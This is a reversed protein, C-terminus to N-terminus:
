YLSRKWIQTNRHTSSAAFAKGSNFAGETSLIFTPNESVTVPISGSGDTTRNSFSGTLSGNAMNGVSVTQGPSGVRLSFSPVTKGETTPCWVAYIVSDRASANRYRFIWVPDGPADRIISDARYNKMLGALAVDYYYAPTAYLHLVHDPTQHFTLLGTTNFRGTGATDYDTSLADNTLQYLNSKDVGTFGILLWERVIWEAQVLAPDEGEPAIVHLDSHRNRDFGWESFFVKSLPNLVHMLHTYASLKGLVSDAEPNLASANGDQRFCYYHCDVADWYLKHDPRGWYAFFKMGKMLSSDLYATAPLVVNLRPDAAKIGIRSAGTGNADTMESCIAHMAAATIFLPTWDADIENNLEVYTGVRHNFAAPTLVSADHPVGGNGIVAALYYALRGLRDYNSPLSSDPRAGPRNVLDIPHNVLDIPYRGTNVPTADPFGQLSPILYQGQDAFATYAAVMAEPPFTFASQPSAPGPFVYRTTSGNSNFQDFVFHLSDLAHRVRNTDLWSQNEYYRMNEGTGASLSYPVSGISVNIGMLQGYTPLTYLVKHAPATAMRPASHYGYAVIEGVNAGGGKLVVEFFRTVARGAINRWANYRDTIGAFYLVPSAPTGTYVYISDIGTGDYFSIDTLTDTGGLDIWYRLPFYDRPKAPIRCFTYPAGSPDNLPDVSNQEDFLFKGATDRSLYNLELFSTDGNYWVGNPDITIKSGVVVTKTQACGCVMGLFPLIITIIKRKM